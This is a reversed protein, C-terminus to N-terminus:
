EPRRFTFRAIPLGQQVCRRERHTFPLDEAAFPTPGELCTALAAEIEDAIMPVDSKVWVRGSPRLLDRLEEAFGEDVLRRKAHRRKWWPDPFNIFVADLSGPAFLVPCVLRADGWVVRVNRPEGADGVTNAFHWVYRRGIEVGVHDHDPWAEALGRLFRGRNFGIELTRPAERGFVAVWDVPVATPDVVADPGGAANTGFLRANLMPWAADGEPLITKPGRFRAM